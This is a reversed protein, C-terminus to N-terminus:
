DRQMWTSEICKRLLLRTRFMRVSFNSQKIGLEKCLEETKQDENRWKALFTDLLHQPLESFCKQIMTWFEEREVATKFDDNSINARLLESLNSTENEELNERLRNDRDRKRFHNAIENRLITVLWTRVAADGRFRDIAKIAKLLAEQVLEEALDADQVKLMAFRFLYDGHETLLEASLQSPNQPLDSM